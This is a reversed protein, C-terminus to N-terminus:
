AYSIKVHSSNLRTSKRDEPQHRSAPDPLLKDHDIKYYYHSGPRAQHHTVSCFGFEDRQMALPPQGDIVIEINKKLPAWVTFKTENTEDNFFAGVKPYVYSMSRFLTTYPFL